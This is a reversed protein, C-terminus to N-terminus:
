YVFLRPDFKPSKRTQIYEKTENKTVLLYYQKQGRQGKGAPKVLGKISTFPSIKSSTTNSKNSTTIGKTAKHSFNHETGIM